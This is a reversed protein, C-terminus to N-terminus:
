FLEGDDGEIYFNQTCFYEKNNINDISNDRKNWENMLLKVVHRNPNIWKNSELFEDRDIGFYDVGFSGIAGSRSIGAGCHVIITFDDPETNKINEYFDLVKVAMSEDFFVMNQLAKETKEYESKQFLVTKNTHNEVDHFKLNLVNLKDTNFIKFNGPNTISIFYVGRNKWYELNNDTINNKQLTEVFEKQSLVIIKKM